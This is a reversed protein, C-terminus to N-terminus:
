ELDFRKNLISEKLGNIFSLSSMKKRGEFQMLEIRLAGDYTKVVIGKELSIITGPIAKDTNSIKYCSYIKVIKGELVSYAGPQPSLGRILNFIDVSSKNWNIKEEERKINYGYTVANEDQPIGICKGAFYEPLFEVIMNSAMTQLRLSLTELNDSEYIPTEMQSYIKGADMKYIMEMITIGTKDYGNILSRHIPAGGRLKPLLSAHINLCGFTPIKLMAEPIIQGYACTIILDPFLKEVFSYDNKIKEVQFVPINYKKGITKTPTNVMEQKRGIPRNPQSIIAVVNWGDNIIKEFVNAAFFPTGMLIIRKNKM